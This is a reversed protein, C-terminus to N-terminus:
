KAKGAAKAPASSAPPQVGLAQYALSLDIKPKVESRAAGYFMETFEDRAMGESLQQRIGQSQKAIDAPTGPQISDVKVVAFGYNQASADFVDGAKAAFLGELLQAGLTQQQAEANARTLQLHQVKAGASAAVADVAEGKKLRQVLADAKAKMAVELQNVQYMRTIQPRIENLTLVHAPTVKDVRVAYYEGNGLDTIDTEGGQPQSFADKIMKDNVVPLPQGNAMKGQADIPVPIQFVKLGAAKAAADMNQGKDHADGYKESQDYATDKATKDNLQQDIQAKAEEFTAPKGPTISILKAVALGFQGQIPGSVQGAKMAFVAQAVPQDDVVALPENDYSLPKTGYSAAIAAPNEGKSLRAAIAAAQAPDKAQIKVFSRREPTTLKAKESNFLKQEDAPNPTLTPEIAKASIRVLSITRTEPQRLQDAHAKIFANLQADTPTAPTPETRPDLMIVDATRTQQDLGAFLVAYTWPVKLGSAFASSLHSMSIQDRLDQQFQVPTLNKQGLLTEYSQEDFAGTVPNFFAPIKRIENLVLRDSAQVGNRRIAELVSEETAMGELAQQLVGQQVADDASITQGTQQEYQQLQQDFRQKFDASNVERSGAKVVADSIHVKFIDGVGWVAFAVILVGMLVAAVPSKAFARFAAMM